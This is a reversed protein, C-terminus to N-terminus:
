AHRKIERVMAKIRGMALNWGALFEPDDEKLQPILELELQALSARLRDYKREAQWARDEARFACILFTVCMALIFLFISVHTM